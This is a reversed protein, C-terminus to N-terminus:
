TLLHLANNGECFLLDLISLCPIFGLKEEFVQRYVPSEGTFSDLTRPLIKNRMDMMEQEDYIKKYENTFAIEVPAKLQKLVWQMLDFNFDWLFTYHRNYFIELGDKYFEFWPSHNYASTISRWHVKQWKQLNDIKVERIMEDSNRGGIIPISLDIRGNGGAISCRNRFSMKQWRECQEIIIYKSKILNKYYIASGLYQLDILLM